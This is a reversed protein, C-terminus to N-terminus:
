NGEQKGNRYENLESLLRWVIADMTEGRKGMDNLMDHTQQKVNIHKLRSGDPAINAMTHPPTGTM